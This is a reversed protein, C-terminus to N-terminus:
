WVPPPQPPPPESPPPRAPPPAGPRRAWPQDALAAEALKAVEERNRPDAWGRVAAGWLITGSRADRLVLELLVEEPDFFGRDQVSFPPPPPPVYGPQPPEPVRWFDLYVDVNVQPPSAPIPVPRAVITGPPPAPQTPHAGAPLGGPPPAPVTPHVPPVQLAAGAARPIAGSVSGAARPASAAAAGPVPVTPHGGAGSPAGGKGKGAVMAVVVVAVIAVFGVVIGATALAQGRKRGSTRAVARERLFLVADAEAAPVGRGQLAADLAARSETRARESEAPDVSGSGEVWLEMEPEEFYVREVLPSAEPPPLPARATACGFAALAALAVGRIGRRPAPTFSRM